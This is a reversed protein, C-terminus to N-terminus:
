AGNRDTAVDCGDNPAGQTVDNWDGAVDGCCNWNEADAACNTVGVGAACAGDTACCDVIAGANDGTIDDAACACDAACCDVFAGAGSGKDAFADSSNPFDSADDDCSDAGGDAASKAAAARRFFRSLFVIVPVIVPFVSIVGVTCSLANASLFTLCRVCSGGISPRGVSPPPEGVNEIGVGDFVRLDCWLFREWEELLDVKLRRLYIASYNVIFYQDVIKYFIIDYQTCICLYM